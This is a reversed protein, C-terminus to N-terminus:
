FAFNPVNISGEGAKGISVVLAERTPLTDGVVHLKLIWCLLEPIIIIFVAALGPESPVPDPGKCFLRM